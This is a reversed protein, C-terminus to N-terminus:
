ATALDIIGRHETSPATLCKRIVEGKDKKEWSFEPNETPGKIAAARAKL